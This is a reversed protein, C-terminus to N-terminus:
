PELSLPALSAYVRGDLWRRHGELDARIQTGSVPASREVVVLEAGLLEAFRGYRPESTFVRDFRGLERAGGAYVDAYRPLVSEPNRREPDDLVVVTAEPYLDRLWSARLEVPMPPYDGAPESDYVAITLEDVDGLAHEILRQHGAHLPMFKGFVLGRTAARLRREDRVWQVWGVVNLAQYVFTMFFPGWLKGHFFLPVALVNSLSWAVWNLKYRFADMWIACIALFVTGLELAWWVSGRYGELNWYAYVSYVFVGLAIATGVVDTRARPDFGIRLRVLAWQIAGYTALLLFSIQLWALVPLGMEFFLATWLSANVIMWIWYGQSKWILFFTAIVAALGGGWGQVFDLGGALRYGVANMAVFFVAAGVHLWLSSAHRGFRDIHASISM